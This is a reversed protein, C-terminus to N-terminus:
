GPKRVTYCVSLTELEDRPWDRYASQSARLQAVFEDLYTADAKMNADADTVSFGAEKFCREVEWPRLQTGIEGFWRAFEADFKAKSWLLQELPKHGNHHYRFDVQHVGFGGPRTVRFLERPTDILPNIHELVANSFVIDISGSDLSKLAYAPEVLTEIVGAYGNQAIVKDLLRAPRGWKSRILSYLAPHYEDQWPALYLDAVIARRCNEAVLLVSGFDKGPGLELYSSGALDIRRHQLM